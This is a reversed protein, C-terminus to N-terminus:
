DRLNVNIRPKKLHHDKLSVQYFSSLVAFVFYLFMMFCLIVDIRMRKLSFGM